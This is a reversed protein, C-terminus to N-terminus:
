EGKGHLLERALLLIGEVHRRWSFDRSRALGRKGLESALDPDSAIEAVQEAMADPSFRDFYLGTDGCIERHVALSSAVIPLGSAMAEVLPHAFTEAYAATVYIDCSRYVQHLLHYPVTGLEVVEDAVGLERVLNAAMAARYSGPNAGTSLQCTL